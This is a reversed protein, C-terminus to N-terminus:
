EVVTGKGTAFTDTPMETTLADSATEVVGGTQTDTATFVSGSLLKVFKDVDEESPLIKVMFEASATQNAPLNAINWKVIRTVPDFSLDGSSALIRDHWTIDAPLTASVSIDELEHVAEAIKWYIKYSTESGVKPPLPGEGLPAGNDAYFRAEASLDASAKLSVPFVPTQVTSEGVTVYTTVTWADLDTAGLVDKIPFSLNFTKKEGAKIAGVVGADLVIGASTLKGGALAASKWVLPVGSDPKFDILLSAGTIEAAGTNELRVTLRTTGGLEVTARDSSGNIAMTTRLDSGAVDTFAQASSQTFERDPTVISVAGSFQQIDSVEATFAGQWTIEVSAEPLLEGLSWDLGAGAALAPTSHDFIFGEPTVLALHSGSIPELGTNTIKATYTLPQGPAATEPGALELTLTSSLTTVEATSIDSFISNFNGPRYAALVQIKTAAPVDSLWIGDLILQGDSHPSLSGLTWIFEDSNTPQPMASSLVFASPLNIDLELSALPTRSPNSYNVAIQVHDGSKVEPPVIIELTLPKAKTQEAFFTTYIFFGGFALISLLALALVLRTLFRTFGSGDRKMVHLDSRDDGYIAQLGDDITKAEEATLKVGFEHHAKVPKHHPHEPAHSHHKPM